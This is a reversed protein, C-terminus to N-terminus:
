IKGCQRGAGGVLLIQLQVVDDSMTRKLRSESANRRGAGGVVLVLSCVTMRACAWYIKIFCWAVYSFRNAPHHTVVLGVGVVIFYSAERGNSKIANIPLKEIPKKTSPRHYRSRRPCSPQSAYM